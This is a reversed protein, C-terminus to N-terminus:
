RELVIKHRKAALTRMQAGVRGIKYEASIFTQGGDM